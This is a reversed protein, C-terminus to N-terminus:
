EDAMNETLKAAKELDAIAKDFERVTIYRHGRHRYLKANNPHKKIGESYIEIADRYRWLYAMRRGLWIIADADNLNKEYDAQAKALNSKLKEIDGQM